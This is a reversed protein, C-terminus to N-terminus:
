GNRIGELQYIYGIVAVCARDEDRTSSDWIEKLDELQKTYGPVLKFLGSKGSGALPSASLVTAKIKSALNVKNNNINKRGLPKYTIRKDIALVYSERDAQHLLGLWSDVTPELTQLNEGDGLAQQRFRQLYLPITIAGYTEPIYIESNPIQANLLLTRAHNIM